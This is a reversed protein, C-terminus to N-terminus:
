LTLGDQGLPWLDHWWGTSPVPISDWGCRSILVSQGTWVSVSVCFTRLDFSIATLLHCKFSWHEHLFVNCCCFLSVSCVSVCCPSVSSSWILRVTILRCLAEATVSFRLCDNALLLTLSSPSREVQLKVAMHQDKNHSVLSIANHQLIIQIYQCNM